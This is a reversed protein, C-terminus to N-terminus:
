RAGEEISTWLYGVAFGSVAGAVAFGVYEGTEGLEVLHEPKLNLLRAEEEMIQMYKTEMDGGAIYTSAIMASTLGIMILFSNKTFKEM